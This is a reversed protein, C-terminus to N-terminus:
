GDVRGFDDGVAPGRVVRRLIGEGGEPQGPLLARVGNLRVETARRVSFDDGEM